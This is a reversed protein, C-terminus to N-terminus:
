LGLQAPRQRWVLRVALGAAAISGGACFVYALCLSAVLSEPANAMVTFIAVPLSAQGPPHLLLVTSVDATALLGVLVVSLGAPKALMPALVQRAYLGLPAGHVAAAWAWSPSLTGIARVMIVGAIPVLRMALVAAVTFRSRLLPDLWAPAASATYVMGLAGLAPPLVFVLLLSALLVIRLAKIRAACIGLCIALATALVGAFLSYVLTNAGTRALAEAVREFWFREWAPQTLGALPALITLALVTGLLTPGAWSAPTWQRPRVRDVDRGLLGVALQPASLWVLPLALLLVVASLRLCQNAALEFDYLSSFSVLVRTAAGTFGLIQGPGPDSLTVVGGLLCAAVAAPLVARGAYRLGVAEGGALRAADVQSAPLSRVALFTAFIVLPVSVAAFALVCGPAGSLLSERPLGLEIRLMSLGIAWLFSPIVLPIALAGLLLGRLPFRYLGALLGCPLGVVLGVASTGAAVALSRAIVRPFDDEVGLGGFSNILAAGLLPVAPAIALLLGAALGASRWRGPQELVAPSIM